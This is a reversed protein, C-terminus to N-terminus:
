MYIMINPLPQKEPHLLVDRSSYPQNEFTATKGLAELTATQMRNVQQRNSIGTDSTKAV